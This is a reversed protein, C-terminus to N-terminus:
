EGFLDNNSNGLISPEDDSFINPRSTANTSNSINSKFAAPVNATTAIGTPDDPALKAFRPGGAQSSLGILTSGDPMELLAGLSDDGLLTVPQGQAFALDPSGDANLRQIVVGTEGPAYSIVDVKGDSRPLTTEALFPSQDSAPNFSTDISGDARLRQVQAGDSVLYAGGDPLAVIDFGHADSAVVRDSRISGDSGTVVQLLKSSGAVDPFGGDILYDLELYGIAGGDPAPVADLMYPLALQQGDRGLPVAGADISTVVGGDGWSADAGGDAKLRVTRSELDGNSSTIAFATLRGDTALWARADASATDSDNFSGNVAFSTDASGDPNLRTVRVGGPYNDNNSVVLLRGDPEAFMRGDPGTIDWDRGILAVGNDGYTMDPTGDTTFRAIGLDPGGAIGGVTGAVYISGDKAVAFGEVQAWVQGNPLAPMTAYGGSGFHSDFPSGDFMRRPELAELWESLMAAAADLACECMRRRLFIIGAPALSRETLRVLATSANM